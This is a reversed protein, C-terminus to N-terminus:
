LDTIQIWGARVQTIITLRRGRTRTHSFGYSSMASQKRVAREVLFEALWCTESEQAADVIGRCGTIESRVGVSYRPFAM